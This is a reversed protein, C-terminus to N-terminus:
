VHTGGHTNGVAFYDVSADSKKLEYFFNWFDYVFGNIHMLKLLEQPMTRGFIPHNNAVILMSAESCAEEVNRAINEGPFNKQMDTYKIVPDYLTIQATPFSRKLGALVHVAMSGRLDDTEPIGKFALGVLAIKPHDPLSRLNFQDCIFKLAEFPQRENVLRCARTIELDIGATEASQILIHPDKELCPGGVLGPLPVDTRVYGHKGSSIVEMANLGYAESIRAVENAFAFRTDRYTNDVLKILEAAEYSTVEVIRSTLKKFVKAAKERSIEDDAGIIQPISLLEELANGELTREPCVALFFEKGTEKLIPEIIERATKVKVTSRLVVLAGDLMHQAVELCADKIMDLRVNGDHDLPTGVTIIYCDTTKGAPLSTGFKFCGAEVGRRFSATLNNEVFHPNGSKLVDVVFKQKESGYVSMGANAMAVSLTLGVYGLGVICVEYDVKQM